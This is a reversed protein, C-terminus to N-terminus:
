AAGAKAATGKGGKGGDKRRETNRRRLYVAVGLLASALPMFVVTYRFTSALWADSVHLGATFAPKQPIDVIQPRQTLWAISAEVFLATGRLEEARFNAPELVGASGIVVARGGRPAGEVKPLESAWAITLPGKKDGAGMVPPTGAKAWEFFNTMGFAQDTTVLLPSVAAAGANTPSVSSVVTVVPVVGKEVSRMLGGTLPHPKVTLAFTEGVGRPSRFRGDLEFVFDDDIKVGAEGTLGELGLNLYRRDSGDPQPGVAVFVSGGERLYKTYRDADEPPVRETPGGVILLKCDTLWAPPTGAAAARAPEVNEVTFGNRKLSERLPEAPAEGHGSAFCAKPHDTALVARLAGTLAQELRPRRRLDDDAEVEVLEQQRILEHRDGRSVIAAASPVVRGEEKDAALGYKAVLALLEAPRRDPDIFAVELRSTEARYGDLLHEMSLTLPDGSPLLVEIKIPDELSRLTSVTADSLTYLGGRTWDWRKYHRAVLVNGFTALVMAAVIGLSASVKTATLSNKPAKDDARKEAAGKDGPDTSSAPRRRKNKPADTSM